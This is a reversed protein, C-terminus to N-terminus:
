KVRRPLGTFSPQSKLSGLYSIKSIYGIDLWGDHTPERMQCSLDDAGGLGYLRETLVPRELVWV